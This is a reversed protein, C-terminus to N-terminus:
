RNSAYPSTSQVNSPRKGVDKSNGEVPQLLRDLKLNVLALDTKLERLIDDNTAQEQLKITQDVQMAVSFITLIDLFDFAQQENSM